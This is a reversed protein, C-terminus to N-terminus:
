EDARREGIVGAIDVVEADTVDLYTESWEPRGDWDSWGGDVGDLLTVGGDALAEYVDVPLGDRSKSTYYHKGFSNGIYAAVRGDADPLDGRVDDAVGDRDLFAFAYQGVKERGDVKMRDSYTPHESSHVLDVTVVLGKGMHNNVRVERRTVDADAYKDRTM